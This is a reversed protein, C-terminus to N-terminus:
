ASRDRMSAAVAAAFDSESPSALVRLPLQLQGCVLEAQAREKATFEALWEPLRDLGDRHRVRSAVVEPQAEVLVVARLNLTEFVEVGLLVFLGEKDLLVFHGDLLLAAGSANNRRVAKALAVQNEDVDSVHKDASWGPLAREEKILKSASTHLLGGGTPLREALYTKGVGHIGALFINM